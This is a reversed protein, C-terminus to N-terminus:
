WGPVKLYGGKIANYESKTVEPRSISLNCGPCLLGYVYIKNNRVRQIPSMIDKCRYCDDVKDVRYRKGM